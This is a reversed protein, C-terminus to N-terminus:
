LQWNAGPTGTPIPPGQPGDGPFIPDTWGVMSHVTGDTRIERVLYNNFDTFWARGDPLFVLAQVQNVRTQFRPHEDGNFGEEGKTGLWTCATGSPQNACPDSAPGDHKPGPPASTGDGCAVLSAGLSTLLAALRYTRM